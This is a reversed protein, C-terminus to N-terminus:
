PLIKMHYFNVQTHNQTPRTPAQVDHGFGGKGETSFGGGEKKEVLLPEDGHGGLITEVGASEM